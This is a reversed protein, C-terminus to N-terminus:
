KSQGGWDSVTVLQRVHRWNKQEVRANDKKKYERSRTFHVREKRQATM